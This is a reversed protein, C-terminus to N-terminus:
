AAMKPTSSHIQRAAAPVVARMHKGLPALARMVSGARVPLAM